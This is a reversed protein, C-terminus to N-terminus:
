KSEWITKVGHISTLIFKTFFCPQLFWCRTKNSWRIISSRVFMSYLPTSSSMSVYFPQSFLFNQLNLTIDPGHKKGRNKVLVLVAALAKYINRDHLYYYHVLLSDGSWPHHVKVTEWFISWFSPCCSHLRKTLHSVLVYFGESSTTSM